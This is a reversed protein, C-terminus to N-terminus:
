VRGNLFNEFSNNYLLISAIPNAMEQTNISTKVLSEIIIKDSSVGADLAIDISGKLSDIIEGMLDEETKGAEKLAATAKEQIQRLGELAEKKQRDTPKGIRHVSYRAKGQEDEVVIPQGAAEGVAKQFPDGLENLRVKKM